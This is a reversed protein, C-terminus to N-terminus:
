KVNAKFVQVDSESSINKPENKYNSKMGERYQHSYFDLSIYEIRTSKM